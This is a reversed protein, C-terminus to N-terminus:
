YQEIVNNVTTKEGEDANTDSVVLAINTSAGEKIATIQQPDLNSKVDSDDKTLDEVITKVDVDSKVEEVPSDEELVVDSSNTEDFVTYSVPIEITKTKSANSEIGEDAVINMTGLSLIMLLSLLISIVKKM